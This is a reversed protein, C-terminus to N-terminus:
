FKSSFDIVWVTRYQSHKASHVGVRTFNKSLIIKRHGLDTGSDVLLDILAELPHSQGYACCEGVRKNMGMLLAFRQNFGKHGVIGAKGSRRAYSKAMTNLIFSSRLPKLQSLSNLDSILTQKYYDYVTDGNQILYPKLVAKVFLKADMRALNSYFIVEREQKTALLSFSAVKAQHLIKEDWLSLDPQFDQASVSDSLGVLLYIIVQWKMDKWKKERYFRFPLLIIIPV